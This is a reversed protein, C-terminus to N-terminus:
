KCFLFHNFSPAAVNRETPNSAAQASPSSSVSTSTLLGWRCIYIVTDIIACICIDIKIYIISCIRFCIGTSIEVIVRISVRIRVIALLVISFRSEKCSDRKQM